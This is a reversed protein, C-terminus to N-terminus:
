KNGIRSTPVTDGRHCIRAVASTQVASASTKEGNGNVTPLESGCSM